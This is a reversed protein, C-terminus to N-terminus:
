AKRCERRRPLADDVDDAGLLAVRLGAHRDDAAIAVGRSVARETREREADAGAFDLVDQGRLRQQLRLGLRELKADVALKARTDRGLVHNKIEDALDRGAAASAVADLVRAFHDARERHFVAHRNAVHRDFAAGAGAEDCGVVRGVVVEATSGVRRLTCFEVFRDGAPARQRGVGARFVVLREHEVAGVDRRLDAPAGIRALDGRDRGANGLRGVKGVRM